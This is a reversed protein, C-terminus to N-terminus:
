PFCSLFPPSFLHVKFIGPSLSLHPIDTLGRSLIAYRYLACLWFGLPHMPILASRLVYLSISAIPQRPLKCPPLASTVFAEKADCSAGLGSVFRLKTFPCLGFRNKENARLLIVFLNVRTRDIQRPIGIVKLIIRINMNLYSVTLRFLAFNSFEDYQQTM